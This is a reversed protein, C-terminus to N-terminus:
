DAPPPTWPKFAGGAVASAVPSEYGDESVSSLGFVWDDVRVGDLVQNTATGPVRLSHEWDAADTPRWHVVYAAANPVPQWSITTDTSVAGEATPEPPMPARALSALAAVNLKTVKALYPFDMEDITDGYKIGDETRLDQHQHEYDEVAVSFRVAPFGIEQFAIHDGGRGFRDTRWIQRVDLGLGLDDALEEVFRSINRSPSDNFGGRSRQAAILEKTWDGRV